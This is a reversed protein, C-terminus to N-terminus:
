QLEGETVIHLKKTKQLKMRGCTESMEVFMQTRCKDPLVLHAMRLRNKILDQPQENGKGNDIDGTEAVPDIHGM